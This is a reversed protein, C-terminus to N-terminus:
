ESRPSVSLVQIDQEPVGYWNALMRPIDDVTSYGSELIVPRTHTEWDRGNYMEFLVAHRTLEGFESM